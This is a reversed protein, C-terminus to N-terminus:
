VEVDEMSMMVQAELAAAIREDTSIENSPANMSDEWAEIADLYSQDTDCTSFDCGAKAYMEVMDDFVGFFGGNIAGGSCVIKVTEVMAIPYQEKWQDATFKQGTPVFVDSEKNWIAYRSM